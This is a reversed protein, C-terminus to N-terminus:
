NNLGRYFGLPQGQTRMSPQVWLGGPGKGAEGHRRFGLGQFGQVRFGLRRFELGQVRFKYGAFGKRM